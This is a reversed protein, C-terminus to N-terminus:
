VTYKNILRTEDEFAERIILIARRWIPDVDDWSPVGLAVPTLGHWDMWLFSVILRLERM